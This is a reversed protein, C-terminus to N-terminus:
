RGRSWHSYYMITSYPSTIIILLKNRKMLRYNQYQHVLHVAILANECLNRYSAQTM